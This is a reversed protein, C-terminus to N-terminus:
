KIVISELWAQHHPAKIPKSGWLNMSKSAQSVPRAVIVLHPRMPPLADGHPGAKVDRTCGTHFGLRRRAAKLDLHLVRQKELV